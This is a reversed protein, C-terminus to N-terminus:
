VTSLKYVTNHQYEKGPVLICSPFNPRNPSDPYYQTELCFAGHKRYVVEQKGKCSNDTPLFNGTYFQVGPLTSFVEMVRGSGPHEVRAVQRHGTGNVCFNHDFGPMGTLEKFRQGLQVLETLDFPSGRVAKVEGTPILAEDSPTFSDAYIKVKHDLIDGGVGALNFYSHNTLNVPTPQTTTAKYGIVLENSDTLKFTVNCTVQGPYGEEGDKSVYTMVVTDGEVHSSWLVRDFGKKGGHLHNPPRNLTVAYEKGNITYKGNAIRNAFRGITAGFYNIGNYYGEVNDFGLTLDEVKGTKDPFKVSTITAGYNIIQVTMKNKNSLTFRRVPQMLSGEVYKGFDDEVIQSAAM